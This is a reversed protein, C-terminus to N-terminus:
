VKQLSNKSRRLAPRTGPTNRAPKQSPLAPRREGRRMLSPRQDHKDDRERDIV